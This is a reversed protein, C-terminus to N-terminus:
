FSLYKMNDRETLSPASTISATLEVADYCNSKSSILLVNKSCITPLICGCSELQIFSIGKINLWWEELGQVPVQGCRFHWLTM